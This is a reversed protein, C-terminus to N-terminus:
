PNSRSQSQNEQRGGFYKRGVRQRTDLASWFAVVFGSTLPGSLLPGSILEGPSTYFSISSLVFVPAPLFNLFFYVVVTSLTFKASIKQQETKLYNKKKMINLGGQFRNHWFRSIDISLICSICPLQYMSPPHPQVTCHYSM